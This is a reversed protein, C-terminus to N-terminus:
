TFNGIVTEFLYFLYTTHQEIKETREEQNEVSNNSLNKNRKFISSASITCTNSNRKFIKFMLRNLKLVTFAGFNIFYFWEIFLLSCYVIKIYSFILYISSQFYNLLEKLTHYILWNSNCVIPSYNFIVLINNHVYYCYYYKDIKQREGMKWSDIAKEDDAM